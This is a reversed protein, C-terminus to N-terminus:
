EVLLCAIVGKRPLLLTEELKRLPVLALAVVIKIKKLHSMKRMQHSVMRFLIPTLTTVQLVVKRMIMESKVANLMKKVSKM